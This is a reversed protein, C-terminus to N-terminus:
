PAGFTLLVKPLRAEAFILLRLVTQADVSGIFQEMTEPPRGHAQIQAPRRNTTAQCSLM